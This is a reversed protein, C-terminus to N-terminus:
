YNLADIKSEVRVIDVKITELLDLSESHQEGKFEWIGLALTPLWPVPDFWLYFQNSLRPFTVLSLQNLGIRVSTADVGASPSESIAGDELSVGSYTQILYGATRWRPRAASCSTSVALVHQEFVFPLEFPEILPAKIKKNEPNGQHQQYYVRQWKNPGALDLLM